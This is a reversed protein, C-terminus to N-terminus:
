HVLNWAKDIQRFIVPVVSAGSFSVPRDDTPYGLVPAARIMNLASAPHEGGAELEALVESEIQHLLAWTLIGACRHRTVVEPVVRSAAQDAATLDDWDDQDMM